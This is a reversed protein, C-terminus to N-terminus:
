RRTQRAQRAQRALWADLIAAAALADRGATAGARRQTDALRSSLREDELIIPADVFDRLDAAFTEIKHAMIGEEGRLTKPYGVVVTAVGEARVIRVIEQTLHARGHYLITKWPSAIHTETDGLALGVRREGWDVGLVRM